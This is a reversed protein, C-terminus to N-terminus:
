VKILSGDGHGFVNPGDVSVVIDAGLKGACALNGEIRGREAGFGLGEWAFLCYLLCHLEEDGLHKCRWVYFRVPIDLRGFEAYFFFVRFWAGASINNSSPLCTHRFASRLAFFCLRRSLAFVPFSLPNFSWLFAYLILRCRHLIGWIFISVINAPRDYSFPQIYINFLIFYFYFFLALASLLLVIVSFLSAEKTCFTNSFYHVQLSYPFSYIYKYRM